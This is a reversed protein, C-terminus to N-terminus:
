PKDDADLHRRVIAEAEAGDLVRRTLLVQALGTVAPIRPRLLDRAAAHADDLVVHVRKALVPHNALLAPVASIDPLGRWVLGGIEDLGLAALAIVALYTTQALDSAERGGAGSSPMGFIMEEAARGALLVMLRERLDGRRIYVSAADNVSVRGGVEASGQLSVVGLAGPWLVCTAVAHGAEHVAAIWQDDPSRVDTGGIENILDDLVLVRKESRARRRAGRVLRECDAGSSGSAAMAAASLDEGVLDEALHERLIRALASRNPYRIAIHRDLRGSRVLAPDLKEPHNCAAILIVGDRGDVGDIETLLANVIQIEYDAYSHAIKGRDPFSDIEDIFLIAPAVAKADAFSKRMAKLFDGQHATGASHWISYSGSVLPVDCTAALARAYLTKGCGPPGSLLCAHGGVNTWPLLGVKYDRLDAALDFGWAVAEDM